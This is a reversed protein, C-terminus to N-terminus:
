AKHDFYGNLKFGKNEIFESTSQKANTTDGGGSCLHLEIECGPPLIELLGNFPAAPHAAWVPMFIAFKDFNTLDVDTKVPVSKRGMSQPAGLVWVTFKNYKKVTKIKVIPLKESLAFAEAFKETKGSFSWVLVIKSM